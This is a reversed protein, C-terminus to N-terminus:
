GDEILHSAMKPFLIAYLWDALLYSLITVSGIMILLTFTIPWDAGDISQLMLRGAGPINFIVEIVVSGALTAPLAGTLITILPLAANRLGHRWYIASEGVGKSRAVTIFSKGLVEVLNSRVQATLFALSSVVICIIPLILQNASAIFQTFFSEGSLYYKVGISPFLNTWSGYEDTTFFVVMLTALWFIPIAYFFFSLWRVCKDFWGDRWKVQYVGLFIALITIIILSTLSLSVTWKLARFVKDMVPQGDIVSTNKSRNVLRTLWQHFQNHTGNWHIVPYALATKVNAMDTISNELRDLQITPSQQNFYHSHDSKMSLMSSQIQVISNKQQLELLDRYIGISDELLEAKALAENLAHHYSEVLTWNRTQHALDVLCRRYSQPVYITLDSPLYSPSASIYFPPNDLGLESQVRRYQNEYATRGLNETVGELSLRSSVLDGPALQNLLFAIVLVAFLTPILVM